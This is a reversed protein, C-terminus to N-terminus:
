QNEVKWNIQVQRSGTAWAFMRSTKDIEVKVIEDM